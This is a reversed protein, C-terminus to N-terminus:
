ADDPLRVLFRSCSLSISLTHTSRVPPCRHHTHECEGIAVYRGSIREYPPDKGHVVPMYKAADGRRKWAALAAGFGDPCGAHYLVLSVEDPQVAKEGLNVTLSLISDESGPLVGAM